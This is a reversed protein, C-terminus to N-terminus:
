RPKGQDQSSLYAFVRRAAAKLVLDLPNITGQDDPRPEYHKGETAGLWELRQRAKQGLEGLTLGKIGGDAPPRGFHVKMALLTELSASAVAEVTLLEVATPAAAASSAPAPKTEGGEARVAPGRSTPAPLITDLILEAAVYSLGTIGQEPWAIGLGAAAQRLAEVTMEQRQMGRVISSLQSPTAHPADAMMQTTLQTTAVEGCRQVVLAVTAQAQQVEAASANAPLDLTAQVTYSGERTQVSRTVSGTVRGTAKDAVTAEEAPLLELQRAAEGDAAQHQSGAIRRFLM